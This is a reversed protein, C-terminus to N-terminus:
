TGTKTKRGEYVEEVKRIYLLHVVDDTMKEDVTINHETLFPIVLQRMFPITPYSSCPSGKCLGNPLLGERFHPCKVCNPNDIMEPLKKMLQTAQINCWQDVAPAIVEYDLLYFPYGESVDLDPLAKSAEALEKFAVKFQLFAVALRYESNM